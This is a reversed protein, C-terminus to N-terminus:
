AARVTRWLTWRDQEVLPGEPIRRRLEEVLERLEGQGEWKLGFSYDGDRYSAVTGTLASTALEGLLGNELASLSIEGSDRVVVAGYEPLYESDQFAGQLTM